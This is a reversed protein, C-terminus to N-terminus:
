RRLILQKPESRPTEFRWACWILCIWSTKVCPWLHKIIVGMLLCLFAMGWEEPHGRQRGASDYLTMCNELRWSWESSNEGESSYLVIYSVWRSRFARSCPFWGWLPRKDMSLSFDWTIKYKCFTGHTGAGSYDCSRLHSFDKMNVGCLGCFLIFKLKNWTQGFSRILFGLVVVFHENNSTM